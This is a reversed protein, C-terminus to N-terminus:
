LCDKYQDCLCCDKNLLDRTLMVEVADQVCPTGWCACATQMELCRDHDAARRWLQRLRQARVHPRGRVAPGHQRQQLRGSRGLLPLRWGPVQVPLWMTQRCCMSWASGVVFLLAIVSPLKAASLVRLPLMRWAGSGAALPHFTGRGPTTPACGCTATSAAAASTWRCSSSGSWWQHTCIRAQMSCADKQSYCPLQVSALCAAGM